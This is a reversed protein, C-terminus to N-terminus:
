QSVAEEIRAAVEPLGFKRAFQLVSQGTRTTANPDAGCELLMNVVALADKESKSRVATHLATWSGQVPTNSCVVDRAAAFIASDGNDTGTGEPLLARILSSHGKVVGRGLAAGIASALDNEGLSDSAAMSRLLALVLTDHGVTTAADIVADKTVVAGEALLLQVTEMKRRALNALNGNGSDSSEGSADGAGVKVQAGAQCAARLPTATGALGASSGQVSGCELALMESVLEAGGRGRFHDLLLSVVEPHAGRAAAHLCSERVQFNGTAGIGGPMGPRVWDANGSGDGTAFSPFLTSLVDRDGDSPKRPEPSSASPEDDVGKEEDVKDGTEDTEEDEEEREEDEPLAGFEHSLLIKVATSNGAECAHFLLTRGSDIGTADAHLRTRYLPLKGKPTEREVSSGEIMGSLADRLSAEDAQPDRALAILEAASM